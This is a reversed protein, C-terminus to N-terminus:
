QSWGDNISHQKFKYVMEIDCDIITDAAKPKNGRGQKEGNKIVERLNAYRIM